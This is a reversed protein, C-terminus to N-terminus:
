KRIPVSWVYTQTDKGFPGASHDPIGFIGPLHYLLSNLGTGNRATVIWDDGCPAASWSFAGVYAQTGNFPQRITNRFAEATGVGGRPNGEGNWHGIENEVRLGGYSYKMAESPISGPLYLTNTGASEGSFFKKLRSMAM